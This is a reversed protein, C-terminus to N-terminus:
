PVSEYVTALYIFLMKELDELLESQRYLYEQPENKTDNAKYAYVYFAPEEQSILTQVTQYVSHKYSNSVDNITNLFDICVDYCKLETNKKSLYRGISDIEIKEVFRENEFQSQIWVISIMDDVARRVHYIIEEQFFAFEYNVNKWKEKEKEWKRTHELCLKNIRDIRLMLNVHKLELSSFAHKFTNNESVIYKGDKGVYKDINIKQKM